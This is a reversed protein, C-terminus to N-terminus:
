VEVYEVIAINGANPDVGSLLKELWSIRRRYNINCKLVSSCRKMVIIDDPKPQPDIPTWTKRQRGAHTWIDGKQTMTRLQDDERVLNITITKSRQWTGSDDKFQSSHGARRRKANCSDDVLFYVNQKAGVPIQPLVRCPPHCLIDFVQTHYHFVNIPTGLSAQDLHTTERPNVVMDVSAAALKSEEVKIRKPAEEPLTGQPRKIGQTVCSKISDSTSGDIPKDKDACRQVPSSSNVAPPNYESDESEVATGGSSSDDLTNMYSSLISKLYVKASPIDLKKAVAMIGQLNFCGKPMCGTYIFEIM